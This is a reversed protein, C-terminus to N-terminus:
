VAWRTSWMPRASAGGVKIKSVVDRIFKLDVEAVSVGSNGSAGASAITMYPESERRFHVRGYHVKNILAEFFKPDQSYDIQSGVVEPAIRFVQLQERGSMDLKTFETIAPVQRFLRAADFRWDDLTSVTWPLQTTWGIHGEIEAVFQKIKGAAAEAEARQIVGLLTKYDRLLFYFEFLGNSVLAVCVVALFLAVYKRFLRGGLKPRDNMSRLAGFSRQLMNMCDGLCASSFGLAASCGRRRMRDGPRRPRAPHPARDIGADQRDQPQHRARFHLVSRGAPGEAERGRSDPRYLNGSSSLGRDSQNRLEDPWRGLAYEPWDYIAPIAHRAVLAVIQDRRSTFFPDAGVMLADPRQGGLTAFAADIEDASSAKLIAVTSARIARQAQMDILQTETNQNSPNVLVAIKVAAPVLERLIELRKASLAVHDPERGYRQWGTSQPEDCLRVHGSRPRQPIRDPDDEDGGQGRASRSSLGRYIAALRRRALDSAMAPLRAYQGDAWRYEIAM